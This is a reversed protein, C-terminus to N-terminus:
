VLIKANGNDKVVIRRMVKEEELRVLKYNFRDLSNRVCGSSKLGLKEKIQDFTMGKQRMKHLKMQHEFYSENVCKKKVRSM